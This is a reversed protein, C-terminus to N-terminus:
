RIKIETRERLARFPSSHPPTLEGHKAGDYTVVESRFMKQKGLIEIIKEVDKMPLREDEEAMAFSVPKAILEIDKPITLLAVEFHM